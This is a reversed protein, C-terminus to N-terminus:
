FVNVAKDGANVTIVLCYLVPHLSQPLPILGFPTKTATVPATKSM